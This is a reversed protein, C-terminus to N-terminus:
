QFVQNCVALTQFWWNEEFDVVNRTAYYDCENMWVDHMMGFLTHIRNKAHWLCIVPWVRDTKFIQLSHWFKVFQLSWNEAMLNWWEDGCLRFIRQSLKGIRNQAPNKPTGGGWGVLWPWGLRDTKMEDYFVYWSFYCAMRFGFVKNHVIEFQSREVCHLNFVFPRSPYRYRREYKIHASGNIHKSSPAWRM